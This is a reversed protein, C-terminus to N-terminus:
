GIQQRGNPSKNVATYASPILVKEETLQEAIATVGM